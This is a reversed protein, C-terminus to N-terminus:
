SCVRCSKLNLNKSTFKLCYLYIHETLFLSLIHLTLELSIELNSNNNSGFLLLFIVSFYKLTSEYANNMSLRLYKLLHHFM